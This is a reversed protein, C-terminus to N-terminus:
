PHMAGHFAELGDSAELRRFQHAGEVILRLLELTELHLCKLLDTFVGDLGCARGASLSGMSKVVVSLSVRIPGHLEIHRKAAEDLTGAGTESRCFIIGGWVVQRLLQQHHSAM